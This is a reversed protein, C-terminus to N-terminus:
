TNSRYIAKIKGDEDYECKWLKLLHKITTVPIDYHYMEKLKVQVYKYILDRYPYRECEDMFSKEYIKKLLEITEEKTMRKGKKYPVPEIKSTMEKIADNASDYIYTSENTM